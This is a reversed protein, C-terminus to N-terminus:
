KPCCAIEHQRANKCANHMKEVVTSQFLGLSRPLLVAILKDTRRWQGEKAGEVLQIVGAQQMQHGEIYARQMKSPLKIAELEEFIASDIKLYRLADQSGEGDGVLHTM